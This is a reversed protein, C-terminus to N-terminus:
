FIFAVQVQDATGCQSWSEKLKWHSCSLIEAHVWCFHRNFALHQPGVKLWVCLVWGWRAALGWLNWSNDVSMMVNQWSDNPGRLTMVHILVSNFKEDLWDPPLWWLKALLDIGLRCSFAHVIGCLLVNTTDLDIHHFSQFYFSVSWWIWIKAPLAWLSM